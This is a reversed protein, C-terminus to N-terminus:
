QIVKDARQSISQPITIGLARATKLNVGLIFKTPQEVPLDAPKAGRLLKDFLLAGRRTLERQDIEYSLLAGAELSRQDDVITPLSVAVAAGFVKPFWDARTANTIMHLAQARQRVVEALMDDFKTVGGMDVFIPEIGLSQYAEELRKRVSLFAPNTSDVLEAVRRISPLMERILSMRKVGLESWLLAYGTVNGGPRSLSAVLGSAVPDAAEWMLIPISDTASKAALAAPTGDTVILDVKAKVFEQATSSLQEVRVSRRDILVNQGVIWGVEALADDVKKLEDPPDPPGDQLWGIRRVKSAQAIAISPM